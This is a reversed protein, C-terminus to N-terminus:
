NPVPPAPSGPEGAAGTGRAVMNLAGVAADFGASKAIDLATQGIPSKIDIDAGAKGLLAVIPANNHGAAIMIATIGDKSLANVNAGKEILEQAIDLPQPGQAIHGSRTRAALQTAIVMLPTVEEYGSTADVNAGLDVLAKAAFFKNDGIAWSLPSIGDKTKKEIDAGGKVLAEISPVHNRNIAHLLPFFGDIDTANPDAGADLLIKILSPRRTSAAADLPTAGTAHRKNVNGGKSILFSLREADNGTVAAFLERDIDAGHALWGELREKTVLQHAAAKDTPMIKPAEKLFRDQSVNRIRDYYSGHAPLDGDAACKACKILPVGYEALIAAIEKHKRQLAWDLMYKLMVQNQEMGIALEFEMPVHDEWLNVPQIVIPENKMTKLWGAFPGWIAAVDLEGDIVQQVQRWPQSEPRLDTDYSIVQLHLGRVGRRVLAERIGSHQFVGVKLENLVPDDLNEIKINRDERHVLVYTTRYLPETTLLDQLEIPMDMLIDCEDNQFTERTLGREHYPRWFFSAHTGLDEALLKAIKNQFGNEDRASLPMNGPDACVRLPSKLKRTRAAQRAATHEAATLEDFTKNKTFSRLERMASGDERALLPGSCALLASVILAVSLKKM